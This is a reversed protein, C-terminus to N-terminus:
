PARHPGIPLLGPPYSFPWTPDASPMVDYTVSDGCDAEMADPSPFARGLIAGGAAPQRVRLASVDPIRRGLRTWDDDALTGARMHHLQRQGIVADVLSGHLFEGADDTSM